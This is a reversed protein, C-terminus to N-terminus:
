ANPKGPKPAKETGWADGSFMHKNFGDWLARHEPSQNAISALRARASEGHRWVSHDDSYQYFWDHKGLEEYYEQLEMM